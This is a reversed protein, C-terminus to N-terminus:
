ENNTIGDWTMNFNIDSISESWEDSIDGMISYSEDINLQNDVTNFILAIAASPTQVEGEM